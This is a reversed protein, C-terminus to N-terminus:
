PILELNILIIEEPLKNLWNKFCSFPSVEPRSLVAVEAYVVAHPLWADSILAMHTHWKNNRKNM